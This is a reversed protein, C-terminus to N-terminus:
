RFIWHQEHDTAIHEGTYGVDHMFRHLTDAGYPWADEIFQPHISVYVLPRHTRLTQEAGRLVELEAGEVDMTILDPFVNNRQCWDDIRTQPTDHPREWCNRFGHDGIVPGFACAPWGDRDPAAFIPEMEPPRLNTKNCAFGAFVGLPKPLGNADWIFRMNPFVLPNPEFLVVEAGWTAWLAPLDGEEAGVDFVVMGPEINDHMHSLREKEWGGNELKWQARDARHEPLKLWWEGNILTNVIATM